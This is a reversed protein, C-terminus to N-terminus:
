KIEIKLPDNEQVLNGRVLDAQYEENLDVTFIDGPKEKGEILKRALPNLVNHQILRRLPRAGYLPDYGNDVLWQKADETVDMDLEKATLLKRVDEIQIDCINALNDKKLRNFMVMEDIRNLFEPAYHRRVVEMVQGEADVSPMGEPLDALVESGLNSTLIIITNRFDVVRGHSDTLRGEDFVQLLLNSVDRHAKEFEDFLIVQYPRRRVAETLTGGEEYGVYGPPAGILRSVSHKEMYESMDIRTMSAENDFMFETVAKTLETKGVGTPGLFMFVGMPRNPSNLGARSLRVSDSIARVAEEQGVVREELKDEMHLLKQKEGQLLNNVPIGTAKGVVYAIMDSTVADGLLLGPTKSTEVHADGSFGYEEEAVINADPVDDHDANQQAEARAELNPIISHMLEGARQFDGRRRADELDRRADDLKILVDKSDELRAKEENWEKTLRELEEESKRVEVKLEELRRMSAIDDEKSLAAIEIRKTLIEQDLNEIPEPKSEQQMRLRSAAEDILDIAKDPMKRDTLYRDALVSASVLANDSIRVGHHVEYKEKLGRLITITDEVSPEPVFVSQFRRALAADKEIYERYEDLTTAGMCHLTGRALAPKLMNAADVGDGKGAGMLIHLEDIFLFVEGDSSEVDKLVGKLREEFEGKFKAGAVLAAM